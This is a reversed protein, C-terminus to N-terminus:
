MRSDRPKMRTSRNSFASIRWIAARRRQYRWLAEPSWLVSVAPLRATSRLYEPQFTLANGWARHARVQSLPLVCRAPLMRDRAVSAPMAEIGFQCKAPGALM